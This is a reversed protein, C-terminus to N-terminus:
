EVNENNNKLVAYYNNSETGMIKEHSNTIKKPKPDTNNNRNHKNPGNLNIGLEQPRNMFLSKLIQKNWQLIDSLINYEICM